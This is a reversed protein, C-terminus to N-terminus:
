AITEIAIDVELMRPADSNSDTKGIKIGLFRGSSILPQGWSNGDGDLPQESYSARARGARGILTRVLEHDREREYVRGLTATSYSPLTVYTKEPGMGSPRHKTEKALADGGSRTDFPGLPIGDVVVNEVWNMETSM